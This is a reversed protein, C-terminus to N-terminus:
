YLSLGLGEIRVLKGSTYVRIKYRAASTVSSYTKINILQRYRTSSSRLSIRALRTSGRYVEITGCTSCKTAILVIRKARYSGSLLYAGQTTSQAYTGMYYASGSRSSWGSTRSLHTDDIPVGTCRDGSFNSQNGVGDRARVGFCLTKGEAGTFPSRFSTQTTYSYIPSYASYTGALSGYRWRLDYNAIGSLADSGSWPITFTVTGGNSRSAVLQWLALGSTVGATPPTADVTFPASFAEGLGNAAGSTLVRVRYSSSSVTPTALWDQSQADPATAANIDTWTFTPSNTFSLDDLGVVNGLGVDAGSDDREYIWTFTHTGPPVPFDAHVWDSSGASADYLQDDVYFSWPDGIPDTSWTINFGVSGAGAFTRTVSLTSTQDAGVAGSRVSRLGSSAFETTTTWGADGGGIFGAPLSTTEFGQGYSSAGSPVAYQVAFTHGDTGSASWAVTAPDGGKIQDSATPLLVVPRAVIGVADFAKVVAQAETSGAGHLDTAAVYVAIQNYEFDALPVLYHTLARYMIQETKAEGIGFLVDNALLYAAHSPILSNAHIGGNDYATRVFQSMSSPDPPSDLAPNALHRALSGFSAEGVTWDSARLAAFVDSYSEDLAGSQGLPILQATSGTVAHTLEHTVIDTDAALSNVGGGFNGFVLQEGGLGAGYYDACDSPCWFANNFANSGFHVTSAITHGTGDYSDRSFKTSYYDYALGTNTYADDVEGDGGVAPGGEARAPTATAPDPLTCDPEGIGSDCDPDSTSDFIKRDVVAAHVDDYSALVAGSRADVFTKWFGFPRATPTTVRWALHPVGAATVYVLLDPSRKPQKPGRSAHHARATANAKSSSVKPSTPVTIGPVFDGNVATVARDRIHVMLRRGFVGLDEYIQDFTVHSWGKGDSRTSRRKLQKGPDSVGFVAGYTRFFDRAIDAAQKSESFREVPIKGTIFSVRGDAGSHVAVDRGDARLRAAAGDRTPAAAVSSPVFGLGAAILSCLVIGFFFRRTISM